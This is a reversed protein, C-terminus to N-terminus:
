QLAALKMPIEYLPDFYKYGTVLVTALQQVQMAFDTTVCGVSVGVAAEKESGGMM